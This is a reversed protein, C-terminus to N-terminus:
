KGANPGMQVLVDSVQEFYKYVAADLAINEEGEEDDLVNNEDLDMVPNNNNNNLVRAIAEDTDAGAPAPLEDPYMKYFFGAFDKYSMWFVEGSADGYELSGEGTPGMEQLQFCREKLHFHNNPNLKHAVSFDKVVCQYFTQREDESIRGQWFSGPVSISRGVLSMPDKFEPLLSQTITPQTAKAKGKRRGM